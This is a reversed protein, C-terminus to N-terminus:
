PLVVITDGVGLDQLLRDVGSNAIAICGLTWDTTGGGGHVEVLGGLGTSQPPETCGDQAANISTQEAATILPPVANLGRTADAKDPYSLLFAKYFSSPNVLRPIYFVGEPTKGDGQKVKDGTPASGLGAQFNTALAGANCLAVNRAAKHVVIYHDKTTDCPSLLEGATGWAAACDPAGVTSDWNAAQATQWCAGVSSLCGYNDGQRCQSPMGCRKLCATTTEGEFQVCTSGSPCGAVDCMIKSCYGGTASLCSLHACDSAVTCADGIDFAPAAEGPWRQIDVPLCVPFLRDSQNYRRRLVCAYGPRCGSPSKDFDCESACLPQGNADICRSMTNLTGTYTTDPCTYASAGQNCAQTCFGNAFGTQLCQPTQNFSANDCEGPNQCAGGIWGTNIEVGQVPPMPDGGDDDGRGDGYITQGSPDGEPSVKEPGPNGGCAAAAAVTWVMFVRKVM